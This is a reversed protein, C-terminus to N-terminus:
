LQKRIITQEKLKRLGSKIARARAEGIGEVKDLDEHSAELIKKLEKFNKVLNEIVIFPIRPIKSTMRYGRPSILTDILPVDGYGMVKSIAESNLFEESSMSQITECVKSYNMENQCYDRIILMGDQEVNKVLENLQMSILRGENGLECIYRDIETVVRMVMETRQIAAVVDHLTCLDEFELLNLNGMVRDLVAVYKELTQIAQNARALIISSDRLIYKIDDKYITIVNRRQSIAVVVNGTQKAVRHATRHRTGTEFTPISSDPVLQVNARVIKKLDSSLIIAGDMKALEYIYSASYESNIKFGGDSLKMVEENDGLVVLGGTKARLINELGERMDTGPAMTKLIELLKRDKKLRLDNM